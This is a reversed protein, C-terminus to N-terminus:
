LGIRIGIGMGHGGRRKGPISVDSVQCSPILGTTDPTLSLLFNANWSNLTDKLSDLLKHPLLRCNWDSNYWNGGSDIPACEESPLPTKGSMSNAGFEHEVIESSVLTNQHNNEILLCHPQISKVFNFITDYPVNDYSELWSWADFWLATIPGYNILLESLQNKIFPIDAPSAIGHRMDRMSYYLCPKVGHANCSDVFEKVIDGSGSKYPSNAITYGPSYASPWLTFGLLAKATLVIYNMKAAKATAVWQGTSLTTPKFDQPHITASDGNEQKQFTQLNFCCFMGYNLTRFNLQDLSLYYVKEFAGNTIKFGSADTISDTYLTGSDTYYPFSIKLTDFNTNAVAVGNKRWHHTITTSGTAVDWFSIPSFKYVLSDHPQTIITIDSVPNTYQDAGISYYGTRKNGRNGSSDSTGWPKSGGITCLGGAKLKMFNSSATDLSVFENSPVVNIISGSDSIGFSTGRNDTTANTFTIETTSISVSYYIADVFNNKVFSGTQGGWARIGTSYIQYCTNNEITDNAAAAIDIGYGTYVIINNYVHANAGYWIVKNTHSGRGNFICDHVVENNLGSAYNFDFLVAGDGIIDVNLNEIEVTGPNGTVCEFQADTNATSYIKYGATIDGHPPNDSTIVLRYGNLNVRGWFSTSVGGDIITAKQTLICPATLSGLSDLADSLLPADAPNTLYDGFGHNGSTWNGGFARGLAGLAVILWFFAVLFGAGLGFSQLGLKTDTTM